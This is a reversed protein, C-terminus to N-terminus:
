CAREPWGSASERLGACSDHYTMTGSAAAEFTINPAFEALFQTLESTRNALDLAQQRLLSGDDFLDPYHCKIMAACSGSPVVVHGYGELVAMTHEAARQAAKRDGGNYSPQGCCTQGEPVEVTFGADQLLQAAAFGVNPRMLDVLCTAFLAVCDQRDSPTTNM